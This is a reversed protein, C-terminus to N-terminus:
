GWAALPLMPHLSWSSAPGGCGPGEGVAVGREDQFPVPWREPQVDSCNAAGGFEWGRGSMACGHRRMEGRPNSPSRSYFSQPSLVTDRGVRM